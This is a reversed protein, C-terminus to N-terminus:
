QAEWMPGGGDLARCPHLLVLHAPQLADNMLPTAVPTLFFVQLGFEWSRKQEDLSPLRCLCAWARDVVGGM